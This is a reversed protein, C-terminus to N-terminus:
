QRGPPPLQQRNALRLYSGPPVFNGPFLALNSESRAIASPVLLGDLEVEFALRGLAQTLSEHRADPASWDDRILQSVAVGFQRRVPASTFDLVRELQVEVVVLVMPMKAFASLGSRSQQGLYEAVATEPTRSLYVTRFSGPPNWRGGFQKSGVGALIDDRNAFRMAAARYARGSWPVAQAACRVMARQLSVSDPHVAM